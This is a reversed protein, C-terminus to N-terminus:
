EDTAAAAAADCDFATGVGVFWVVVVDDDDDGDAWPVVGVEGTALGLVVVEMVIGIGLLRPLWQLSPLVPPYM